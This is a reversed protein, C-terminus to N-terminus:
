QNSAIQLNMCALNELYAKIDFDLSFYMRKPIPKAVGIRDRFKLKYWGSLFIESITLREMDNDEANSNAYLIGAKEMYFARDVEVM